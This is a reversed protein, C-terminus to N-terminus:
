RIDLPFLASMGLDNVAIFIEVSVEWSHTLFSEVPLACSFKM